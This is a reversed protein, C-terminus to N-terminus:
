TDNFIYPRLKGLSKEDPLQAGKLQNGMGPMM